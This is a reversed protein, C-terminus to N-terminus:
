RSCWFGRKAPRPVPLLKFNFKPFQALTPVRPGRTRRVDGPDCLVHTTRKIERDYRVAPRALPEDRGICTLRSSKASSFGSQTMVAGHTASIQLEGLKKGQDDRCILKWVPDLDAAPKILQYDASALNLGHSEKLLKAATQFVERSDAKITEAAIFGSERFMQGLNGSPSQSLVQGGAVTLKTITGMTDADRAIIVWEAPQPAGNKGTVELVGNDFKFPLAKMAAVAGAPDPSANASAALLLLCAAAGFSNQVRCPTRV